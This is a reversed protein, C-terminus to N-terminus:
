RSPIERQFEIRADRQEIRQALMQMEGTRLFTAIVALATRAGDEHIAPANIGAEAERDRVFAVLDRRDFTERVAVLQMRHLRREDLM